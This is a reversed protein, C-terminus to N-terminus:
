AEDASRTPFNAGSAIRSTTREIRFDGGERMTVVPIGLFAYDTDARWRFHERPVVDFVKADRVGRLGGVYEEKRFRLGDRFPTRPESLM